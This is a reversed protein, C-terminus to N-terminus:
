CNDRVIGTGSSRIQSGCNWLECAKQWLAHCRVHFVPGFDGEPTETELEMDAPDIVRECLDCPQGSGTGGWIRRAASSPLRGAAIESLAKGILDERPGTKDRRM